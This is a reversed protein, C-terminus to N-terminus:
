RWKTSLGFGVMILGFGIVMNWRGFTSMVPMDPAIYYLVIWLLGVLFCGLMLPVLWRPSSTAVERNPAAPAPRPKPNGRGKSEPMDEERVV